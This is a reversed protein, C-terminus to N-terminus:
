VDDTYQVTLPASESAQQPITETSSYPHLSFKRVTAVCGAVPCNIHLSSPLDSIESWQVPQQNAQRAFFQLLGTKSYVHECIDNHYAQDVENLDTYLFPCRSIARTAHIEITDSEPASHNQISSIYRDQVSTATTINIGSTDDTNDDSCALLESFRQRVIASNFRHVPSHQTRCDDQSDVDTGDSTNNNLEEHLTSLAIIRANAQRYKSYMDLSMSRLEHLMRLKAEKSSDANQMVIASARNSFAISSAALEKMKEWDDTAEKFGTLSYKDM